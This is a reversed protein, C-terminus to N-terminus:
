RIISGEMIETMGCVQPCRPLCAQLTLPCRAPKFREAPLAWAPKVLRCESGLPGVGKNWPYRIWQWPAAPGAAASSAVGQDAGGLVRQLSLCGGVQGFSAGRRLRCEVVCNAYWCTRRQSWNRMYQCGVQGFSAGKSWGYIVDMLFPRFSKVYEEATLLLPGRFANNVNQIPM